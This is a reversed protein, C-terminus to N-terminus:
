AGGFFDREETLTVSLLKSVLELWLRLKDGTLARRFSINLPRTRLVDAVLQNKRRVINYLSPHQQMLPGPDGGIRGFGQRIELRFRFSEEQL